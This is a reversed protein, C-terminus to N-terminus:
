FSSQPIRTLLRAAPTVQASLRLPPLRGTIRLRLRKRAKACLASYDGRTAGWSACRRARRYCLLPSSRAPTGAGHAGTRPEATSRGQARCCSGSRCSGSGNKASSSYRSECHLGVGFIGSPSTAIPPRCAPPPWSPPRVQHACKANVRMFMVGVIRGLFISSSCSGPPNRM